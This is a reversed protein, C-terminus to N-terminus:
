CTLSEKDKGENRAGVADARVRDASNQTKHAIM